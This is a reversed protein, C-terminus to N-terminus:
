DEKTRMKRRVRQMANDVSKVPIGYLYAVAQYSMGSMVCQLIEWERKSLLAQVEMCRETYSEKEMLITEPTAYDTLNEMGYLEDETLLPIEKNQTRMLTKVRNMVCVYAFTSFRVNKENSFRPIAHFLCVMGEQTLDEADSFSGAFRSVIVRIMRLYRALLEVRAEDSEASMEALEEDSYMSLRNESKQEM